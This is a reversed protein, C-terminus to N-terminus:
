GGLHTLISEELLSIEAPLFGPPWQPPEWDQHESKYKRGSPSIWGPPEDKTALTPRWASSHKLGHHKRCPQGLNSIGTTGGHSWALLHDAENDLSNNSCGPFPCKGDRLRLWQRMAKTLRYSTRGIELPAGDRPDVLVRYFSGAGDAVLKRATSAPIPGYGDLTAAEHSVGLLSFVPVTVLVEARPSPLTSLDTNANGAVVADFEADAGDGFPGDDEVPTNTRSPGSGLLVAAFIDAKIQTLTRSEDPGQIGRALATTRNCIALATVAPLFASIWAMGDRDAAFEVRRDAVGKAHRKEISEPHHRERWTRVKSRFRSPVLEGAPCARVTAPTDPDLFHAEMAAAAAPDLGTTEDAIIRAHQWSICGSSLMDMALPLSNLQGAQDVLAGAAAASVTLAGAVEEVVSMKRYGRDQASTEPPTMAEQLEICDAADRAKIAALQAELRSVATLRALRNDYACQLADTGADGGDAPDSSKDERYLADMAAISAHVVDMETAARGSNGM